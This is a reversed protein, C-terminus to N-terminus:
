GKSKAAAKFHNYAKLANKLTASPKKPNTVADFFIRSDRASAIVREKESIIREAKELAAKIVMDTLNRYGGLTAAKEFLQKQELSLRADFRTEKKVSTGM